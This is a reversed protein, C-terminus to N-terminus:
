FSGLEHVHHGSAQNIKSNSLCCLRVPLFPKNLVCDMGSTVDCHGSSSAAPDPIDARLLLSCPM